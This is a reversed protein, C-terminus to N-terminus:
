STNALLLPKPASGPAPTTTPTPYGSYSEILIVPQGGIIYDNPANQFNNRNTAGSLSLWYLGDTPYITQSSGDPFLQLASGAM